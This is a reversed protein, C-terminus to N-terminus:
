TFRTERQRHRIRSDMGYTRYNKDRFLLSAYTNTATFTLPAPKQIKPGRPDMSPGKAVISADYLDPYKIFFAPDLKVVWRGFDILLQCYASSAAKTRKLPRESFINDDEATGAGQTNSSPNSADTASQLATQLLSIVSKYKVHAYDNRAIEPEEKQLVCNEVTDCYVQDVDYGDSLILANRISPFPVWDIISPHRLATQVATPTHTEPIDNLAESTRVIQWWLVWRLTTYSDTLCFWKKMCPWCEEVFGELMTDILRPARTYLDAVGGRRLINIICDVHASFVSQHNGESRSQPTMLLRGHTLLGNDLYTLDSYSDSTCGDNPQSVVMEMDPIKMTDSAQQFSAHLIDTDSFTTFYQSAFEELSGEENYPRPASWSSQALDLGGCHYTNSIMPCAADNEQLISCTHPSDSLKSTGVTGAVASTSAQDEAANEEPRVKSHAQSDLELELAPSPSPPPPTPSAGEPPSEELHLLPKISGAAYSASTALSLLKTRAAHLGKRLKANEELLEPLKSNDKDNEYSALREELDRIHAVRRERTTRQAIRNRIRRREKVEELPKNNDRRRSKPTTIM